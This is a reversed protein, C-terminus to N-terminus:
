KRASTALLFADRKARCAGTGFGGDPAFYLVPDVNWREEVNRESM